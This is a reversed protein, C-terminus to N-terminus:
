HINNILIEFGDENEEVYCTKPTKWLNKMRLFDPFCIGTHYAFLILCYHVYHTYQFCLCLLLGSIIIFPTMLTLLFLGKGIPEKVQIHFVPFINFVIEWHKKIKDQMSILPLLHLLKHLPYIILISLLLLFFYDDSLENKAFYSTIPVYLFLFCSIMTLSSMFFLREIGYRKHFNVTKWCNM